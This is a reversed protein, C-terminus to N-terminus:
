TYDAVLVLMYHGVPRLALPLETPDDVIRPNSIRHLRGMREVGGRHAALLNQAWDTNAGYPLPVAITSGSRFATVPTRYEQGTKRGKHVIMAYPPVYPAWLGQIRNFFSKNLGPLWSPMVGKSRTETERIAVM